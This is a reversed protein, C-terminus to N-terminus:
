LGLDREKNGQMFGIFKEIEGKKRGGYPDVREANPDLQPWPFPPLPRRPPRCIEASPPTM